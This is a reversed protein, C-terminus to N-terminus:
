EWEITAPPKSTIDYVVRNVGEVEDTIRRSIKTLIEYPIRAFDATMFDVTKVARLAITNDYTRAEDRVGVSQIGTLVAFYQNIKKNLGVKDIEQRMIADAERLLDAKDKTIAGIIRVAIGPGPFPQRMVMDEPLGLAMGVERVEDKFLDRLPEIIATFDIDEPLGGVNHHSKIMKGEGADSEIVDPYITGQVLYEANEIKRAEEEFVRIFREGIIKRKKEPDTVGALEKLFSEEADVHIFNIDYENRFLDEVSAAENKRMLGNDVLICTLQKGIAQHVLVAAVSSDVGGSLGCIVNSAGVQKKIESIKREIFDNIKWDGKLASIDFLFKRMFEKESQAQNFEIQNPLRYINKIKNEALIVQDVDITLIPLKWEKILTILEIIEKEKQYLVPGVLIIAKYNEEKLKEISTSYLKVESYVNLTRIRRAVIQAHPSGCDIILVKEFNSTM